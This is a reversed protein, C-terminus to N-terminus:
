PRGRGVWGRFRGCLWRCDTEKAPLFLLITRIPVAESPVLSIHRSEAWRQMATGRGHGSMEYVWIAAELFLVLFDVQHNWDGESGQIPTRRIPM